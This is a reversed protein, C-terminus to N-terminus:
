RTTATSAALGSRARRTARSSPLWAKPNSRSPVVHRRRDKELDRLRARAERAEHPKTLHVPDEHHGVRLPVENEQRPLLELVEDLAGDRAARLHVLPELAAIKEARLKIHRRRDLPELAPLAEQVVAGVKVHDHHREAAVLRTDVTVGGTCLHARRVGVHRLLGRFLGDIEDKLRRRGIHGDFELPALRQHVERHDLVDDLIGSLPVLLHALVQLEGHHGVEGQRSSWL